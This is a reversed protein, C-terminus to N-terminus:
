LVPMHIGATKDRWNRFSSVGRCMQTLPEGRPRLKSYLKLGSFALCVIMKKKQGPYGSGVIRGMSVEQQASGCAATEWTIGKGWAPVGEAFHAFAQLDSVLSAQRATSQHIKEKKFSAIYERLAASKGWVVRKICFELLISYRADIRRTGM